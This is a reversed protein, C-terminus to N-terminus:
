AQEGKTSVAVLVLGAGAMLYGALSDGACVMLALGILMFVKKM